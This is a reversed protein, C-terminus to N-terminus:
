QPIELTRRSVVFNYTGLDHARPLARIPAPYIRSFLFLTPPQLGLSAVVHELSKAMRWLHLLGEPARQLVQLVVLWEGQDPARMVQTSKASTISLRPILIFNLM